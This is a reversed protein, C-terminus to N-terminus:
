KGRRSMFVVGLVLLVGGGIIYPLYKTLSSILSTTNAAQAQAAALQAQTTALTNSNSQTAVANYAQAGTLGLAALNDLFDSM